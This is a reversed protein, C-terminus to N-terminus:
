PCKTFWCELGLNWMVFMGCGSRRCEGDSVDWLSSIGCGLYGVDLKLETKLLFKQSVLSLM